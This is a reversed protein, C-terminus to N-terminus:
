QLSILTTEERAPLVSTAPTTAPIHSWHVPSQSVGPQARTVVEATWASCNPNPHLRFGHQHSVISLHVVFFRWYFYWINIRRLRSGNKVKSMVKHSEHEFCSLRCTPYSIYVLIYKESFIIKLIIYTDFLKTFFGKIERERGRYFCTYDREREIIDEHTCQM